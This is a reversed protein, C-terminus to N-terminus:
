LIERRRAVGGLASPGTQSLSLSLSLSRAARRRRLNPCPLQSEEGSSHTNESKKKLGKGEVVCELVCFWFGFEEEGQKESDNKWRGARRSVARSEVATSRGIREGVLGRRVFGGSRM